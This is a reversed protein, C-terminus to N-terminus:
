WPLTFGNLPSFLLLCTNGTEIKLPLSVGRVCAVAGMNTNKKAGVSLESGRSRATVEKNEDLKTSPTLCDM